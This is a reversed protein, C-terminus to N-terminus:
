HKKTWERGDLAQVRDDCEDKQKSLTMKDGESKWRYVGTANPAACAYPGSKDTLTLTSADASWTGNLVVEGNAQVELRGHPALTMTYEAFTYTGGPSASAAFASAAFAFLLLGSIRAHM